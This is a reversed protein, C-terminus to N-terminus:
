LKFATGTFDKGQELIFTVLGPQSDEGSNLRYWNSGSDLTAAQVWFRSGGSPTSGLEQVRLHHFHGSVLTTAAAVPQRGFAQKRWWDPVGEPRNAQHGHVLGLIHFGDGFVDHALSEDQAHPQIFKIPSDTEQALRALTRGIFVGWDDQGPKGVKQKNIRNQCHNSAVTAYTVDPVLAALTKLFDWVITTALDVQQMLSLDNTALQHLDAANSFSEIIDGVDAFIIRAPKEKKVQAILREKVAFVRELLEDTGGRHDTKGIQLDSFLIVLAKPELVAVPRVRPKKNATAWLLPLANANGNKLRFTFRFSTLWRPEAPWPSAVQWQSTRVTDNVVEYQAPDYGRDKLFEDFNPQQDSEFGKTTATGIGTEADFELAPRWEKPPDIKPAPKLNDLQELVFM